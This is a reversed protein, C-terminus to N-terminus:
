PLSPTRLWESWLQPQGGPNARAYEYFARVFAIRDDTYPIKWSGAPSPRLVDLDAGLFEQRHAIDELSAVRANRLMDYLAMFTTTRGKGARCHFYAWGDAPMQRVANIFRDVEADDPRVHDSVTLRVYKAQLAEIIEKETSVGQPIIEVPATAAATPTKIANDDRLLLKQGMVVQSCRLFEDALIDDHARGANAWDNTAFWSVPSGNVFIHSEQRLDFVTVPGPLHPGAAKFEEVSFAGSGAAHLEALGALSPAVTSSTPKLPDNTTRFNRPLGATQEPAVDWVLVPNKADPPPTPIYKQELSIRATACAQLGLALGFVIIKLGPSM